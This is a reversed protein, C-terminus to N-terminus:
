SAGAPRRTPAHLRAVMEVHNAFERDVQNADGYDRHFLEAGRAFADRQASRDLMTVIASELGGADGPQYSLGLGHAAILQAMEGELSSILPLGAALYEFPKNPITDPASRCPVLGAYSVSLWAAITSSDVWGTLHVNELGSAAASVEALLEGTGVFVFAVDRRGAGALRRAVSLVLDLEYSRGFTGLFLFLRRGDQGALWQRSKPPLEGAATGRSAGIYLVRDADDGRRAGLEGARSLYGSSVATVSFAESLVRRVRMYDWSLLLEGLTQGVWKRIVNLFIDPWLDRVDVILPIGVSHCFRLAEYALHYCPISAVVVDPQGAAPAAARFRYALQLHDVYRKISVNRGYGLGRLAHLTLGAELRLPGASLLQKKRQHDFTSTWWVVDHGRRALEDALRGTRLRKAHSGIPAPEGTQLLWVVLKSSLLSGVPPELYKIDSAM